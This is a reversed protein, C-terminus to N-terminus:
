SEGTVLKFQGVINHNVFTEVNRQTLFSILGAAYESYASDGLNQRVQAPAMLVGNLFFKEPLSPGPERALTAKAITYRAETAEKNIDIPPTGQNKNATVALLGLLSGAYTLGQAAPYLAPSSLETDAFTQIYQRVQEHAAESFAAAAEANTSVVEFVSQVAPMATDCRELSDFGRVKSDDCVLADQYPILADGFSRVLDPNLQGVNTHNRSFLGSRIDLLQDHKDALFGAIARASEGAQQAVQDDKSAAAAPIWTFEEAARAGNDSWDYTSVELLFEKADKSTLKATVAAPDSPDPLSPTAATSCGAVLLAVSAMAAYLIKSNRARMILSIRSNTSLSRSIEM